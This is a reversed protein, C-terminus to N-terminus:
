RCTRGLRAWRKRVDHDLEFWLETEQPYAWVKKDTPFFFLIVDQGLVKLGQMFATDKNYGSFLENIGPNNDTLKQAQFNVVRYPINDFGLFYLASSSEVICNQNALGVDEIIAGNMREFPPNGVGTNEWPEVSREGFNFLFQNFVRIGVMPDPNSEASFSNIADFTTLGVDGIYILGDSALLIFQNNLYAVQVPTFSLSITTLTSGNYSYALGGGIIVLVTGNDSMSVLGSGAIVGVSTQVGTSTFSYLTPGSVKYGKGLFLQKHIGRDSEGAVGTSFAKQGPFSYLAATNTLSNPAPVAFM